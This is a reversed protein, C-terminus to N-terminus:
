GIEPFIPCLFATFKKPSLEEFNTTPLFLKPSENDNATPPVYVGLGVVLSPPFAPTREGVVL